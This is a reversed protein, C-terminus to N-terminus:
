ARIRDAPAKSQTIQQVRVDLPCSFDSLNAFTTLPEKALLYPFKPKLYSGSARFDQMPERFRM